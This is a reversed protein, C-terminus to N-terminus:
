KKTAFTFVTPFVVRLTEDMGVGLAEALKDILEDAADPKDPNDHKWNHYGSWSKAQSRFIELSINREIYLPTYSASIHSLTTRFIDHGPQDFYPGFFREYSDGYKKKSSEYSWEVVLDTAKQNGVFVPDFYFWYALTGGSKLIRASEAFFKPHDFWHCAEAATILDVSHPQIEEPAQEAPAAYFRIKDSFEVRPDKTCHGIMAPSFDTGIVQKFYNLLKFAVFGPGCGVDLALDLAGGHSKHHEVLHDYFTDPYTPRAANYGKADFDQDQYTTM